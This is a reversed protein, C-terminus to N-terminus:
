LGSRMRPTMESRDPRAARDRKWYLQLAFLACWLSIVIFIMSWVLAPVLTLDALNAADGAQRPDIVSRQLLIMPGMVSEELCLFALLLYYFNRIKGGIYYFVANILIFGILWGVGYGSRVFFLITALAMASIVALGLAQKQKAYGYFMGVAFLSASIYGALSVVIQSWGSALMSYTVGSHDPNLEIRLVRGSVLLTAVAHGLEHVMTDLMRFWDSFPILRTLFAAGLLFLLAKLWKNM